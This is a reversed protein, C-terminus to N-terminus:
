TACYKKPHESTRTNQSFLLLKSYNFYTGKRGEAGHANGKRIVATLTVSQELFPPHLLFSPLLYPTLTLFRGM